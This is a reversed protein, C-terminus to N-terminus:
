QTTKAQLAVTYEEWLTELLDQEADNLARGGNAAFFERLVNLPDARAISTKATDLNLQAGEHVILLTGPYVQRLRAALDVPRDPDTVIARVYDATAGAFEGGPAAGAILDAFPARLTTLKRYVPASILEVKPQNREPILDHKTSSHSGKAPIPHPAKKSASFDLLVASKQQKEESFSFAIPSGSYRMELGNEGGVKQPGHLHGLAVYDVLPEGGVGRLDFLAAPVSDVGGVHIDLESDSPQGGVVFEHAMIICPAPKGNAGLRESQHALIDARVRSLAARVVAEHSRALLKRKNRNGPEANENEGTTNSIESLGGAESWAGAAPESAIAMDPALKSREVDPDLYPIAYVVAGLAGSADPLLVPEGCTRSDTRIALEPRMLQHGFGLRQASDHNGSILVVHTSEALQALTRSLLDVMAVPPVGRDYVDGAILLADVQRERVTHLLFEAWQEFAASLDAGHLTRGFHWDSTHLIRM